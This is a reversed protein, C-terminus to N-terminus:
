KHQQYIDEVAGSDSSVYGEFGWQGRLTQNLFSNACTPVGNVANDARVRGCSATLQHHRVHYM